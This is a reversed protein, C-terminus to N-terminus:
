VIFVIVKNKIVPRHMVSVCITCLPVWSINKFDATKRDQKYIIDDIVRHSIFELRRYSNLGRSVHAPFEQIKLAGM